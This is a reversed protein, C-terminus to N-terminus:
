MGNTMTQNAEHCYACEHPIRYIRQTHCCCFNTHIFKVRMGNKDQRENVNEYQNYSMTVRRHIYIPLFAAAAAAPPLCFNNLVKM